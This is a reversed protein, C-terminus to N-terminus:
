ETRLGDPRMLRWLLPLSLATVALIVAGAAGTLAAIGSWDPLVPKSVLHLLLLGLGLGCGVALALGLVVPVATQWLVSRGLTRRPTGFADLASLLRRRERLQELVTILLGAGIICLVGVAGAQLASGVIDYM